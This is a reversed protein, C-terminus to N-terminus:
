WQGLVSSQETTRSTLLTHRDGAGGESKCRQGIHMKIHTPLYQGHHVRTDGPQAIKVTHRHSWYQGSHHPRIPMTFAKAIQFVVKFSGVGRDLSGDICGGQAHLCSLRFASLFRHM